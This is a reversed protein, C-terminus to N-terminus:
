IPIIDEVEKWSSVVHDPQAKEHEPEIEAYKGHRFWITRCGLEKGIAIETRVKDGITWTQEPAFGTKEMAEEFEELGKKDRIIMVRFHHYIGLEQIHKTRKETDDRSIIVLSYHKGYKELNLSSIHKVIHLNGRDIVEIEQKDAYM